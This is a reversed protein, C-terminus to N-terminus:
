GESLDGVPAIDYRLGGMDGSDVVSVSNDEHAAQVPVRDRLLPRDSHGYLDVDVRLRDSGLDDTGTFLATCWNYEIYTNNMINLM